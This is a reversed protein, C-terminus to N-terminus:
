FTLRVSDSFIGAGCAVLAANADDDLTVVHQGRELIRQVAQWTKGGPVAYPVFVAEAMAAVLDNRLVARASTVRRTKDGFASLVLLRGQRLAKRAQTGIRLGALRRAACIVVPQIGRLLLDLCEREMPSHFGGIVAAGQDRLLRIADFTKLVISGPCEVSCILGILRNDLVHPAGLLYLRDPASAVLRQKVIAPCPSHSQGVIFQSNYLGM